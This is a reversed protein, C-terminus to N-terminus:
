AAKPRLMEAELFDIVTDSPMPKQLVTPPRLGEGVDAPSTTGTYVVFPVRGESLILSIPSVDDDPLMADLVAADPTETQLIVLAHSVSPAPGLVTGGRALVAEALDMAIFLEDEVILVSANDLM